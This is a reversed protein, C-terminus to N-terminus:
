SYSLFLLKMKMFPQLTQKGRIDNCSLTKLEPITEVMEMMALMEDNITAQTLSANLLADAVIFVGLSALKM